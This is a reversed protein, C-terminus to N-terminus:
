IPKAAASWLCLATVFRVEFDGFGIDVLVKVLIPPFFPYLFPCGFEDLPFVGELIRTHLLALALPHLHHVPKITLREGRLDLEKQCPLAQVAM